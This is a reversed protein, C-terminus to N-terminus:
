QEIEQTLKRTAEWAGIMYALCLIRFFDRGYYKLRDDFMVVMVSDASLNVFANKLQQSQTLRDFIQNIEPSEESQLIDIIEDVTPPNTM